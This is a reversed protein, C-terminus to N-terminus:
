FAVPSRRPTFTSESERARLFSVGQYLVGAYPFFVRHRGTYRTVQSLSNESWSYLSNIYLYRFPFFRDVPSSARSIILRSTANRKVGNELQRSIELLVRRCFNFPYMRACPIEQRNFSERLSNFERNISCFSVLFLLPIFTSIGRIVMARRLCRSCHNLSYFLSASRPIRRQSTVLLNIVFAFLYRCMQLIYRKARSVM